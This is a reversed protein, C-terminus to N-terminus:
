CPLAREAHVSRSSLVPNTGGRNHRNADRELGATGGKRPRRSSKRTLELTNRLDNSRRVIMLDERDLADILKEALTITSGGLAVYGQDQLERAFVDAALRNVGLSRAM